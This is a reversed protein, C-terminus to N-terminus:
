VDLNHENMADRHRVMFALLAHNVLVTKAARWTKPPSRCIQERVEVGGDM